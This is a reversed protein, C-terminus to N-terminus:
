RRRRLLGVAGIALLSLTSPEPLATVNDLGIQGDFTAGGGQGAPAGPQHRILLRWLNALTANADFAGDVPALDAPALSFVYTHWQNDPPVITTALSTFNGGAAGNDLLLLRMELPAANPNRMDVQVSTVGATLYDGSWQDANFVALHSGPGVGGNSTAELFNDGLGTPGGDPVNVPPSVFNGEWSQLTGDEFDDVQGLVITAQASSILGFLILLGLCFTFQPSPRMM